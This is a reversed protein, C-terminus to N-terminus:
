YTGCAGGISSNRGNKEESLNKIFDVREDPSMEELIDAMWEKNFCDFIDKKREDDFEEFFLIGEPIGLAKIVEAVKYDELNECLVFIDYPHMDEFFAKIKADKDDEKLLNTIEPGILGGRKVMM